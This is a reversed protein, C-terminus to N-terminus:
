LNLFSFPHFSPLNVKSKKYIKHKLLVKYKLTILRESSKNLTLFFHNIFIIHYDSNKISLNKYFVLLFQSKCVCVYTLIIKRYASLSVWRMMINWFALWFALHSKLRRKHHGLAGVTSSWAHFVTWWRRWVMLVNCCWLQFVNLSYYHAINSRIIVTM